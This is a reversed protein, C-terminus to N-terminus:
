RIGVLSDIGGFIYLDVNLDQILDTFKNDVAEVDDVTLGNNFDHYHIDSYALIKIM